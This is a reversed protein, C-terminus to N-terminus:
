YFLEKENLNYTKHTYKDYVIGASGGGGEGM